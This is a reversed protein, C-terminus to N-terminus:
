HHKGGLLERSAERLFANFDEFADTATMETGNPKKLVEMVATEFVYLTLDDVTRSRARFAPFDRNVLVTTAGNKCQLASRITEDANTYKVKPLQGLRILRGVAERPPPTRPEPPKRPTPERQEEERAIKERPEPRKRGRWTGVLGSLFEARKLKRTVEQLLDMARRAAEKERKTVPPEKSRALREIFPRLRTEMVGTTRKWEESDRDFNTKNTTLPVFDLHVEGILRNLAAKWAPGPHGFFEGERILRGYAYCRLGGPIDGRKEIKTTDLVGIWGRVVQGSGIVEEFEEPAEAVPLQLHDVRRGNVRIEVEGDM